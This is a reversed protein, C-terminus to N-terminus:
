EAYEEKLRAYQELTFYNESQLLVRTYDVAELKRLIYFSYKKVRRHKHLIGATLGSIGTRNCLLSLFYLCQDRSWLLSDLEKLLKGTVRQDLAALRLKTTINYILPNPSRRKCEQLNEMTYKYSLTQTWRLKREALDGLDGEKVLVKDIFEQAYEAFAKRVEAESLNDVQELLRTIFHLDRSPMSYGAYSEASEVAGSDLDLALDWWHRNFKFIPNTVGAVFFSNLFQLASPHAYPCVNHSVIEPISQGVMCAVALVAQCLEWVSQSGAVVLVRRGTFLADYLLMVDAGVRQLIGKLSFDICEGVSRTLDVTYSVPHPGLRTQYKATLSTYLVAPSPEHLSNIYRAVRKEENSVYRLQNFAVENLVHYLEKLVPLPDAVFVQPVAAKLFSQTVLVLYVELFASSTCVALAKYAVSRDYAPDVRAVAHSVM